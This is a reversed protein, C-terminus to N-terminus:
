LPFFCFLKIQCHCITKLDVFKQDSREEMSEEKRIKIKTTVEKM